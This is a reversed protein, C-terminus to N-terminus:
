IDEKITMKEFAWCHIKELGGSIYPHISSYVPHEPMTRQSKITEYAKKDTVQFCEVFLSPQDAAKYWHIDEAGSKELEKLVSTMTNEYAQLTDPNVKYEM